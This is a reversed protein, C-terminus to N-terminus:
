LDCMSECIMSFYIALYICSTATALITFHVICAGNIVDVRGTSNEHNRFSWMLALPPMAGDKKERGLPVACETLVGPRVKAM